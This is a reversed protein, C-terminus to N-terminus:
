LGALVDDGRLLFSPRCFAVFDVRAILGDSFRGARSQPHYVKFFHVPCGGWSDSACVLVRACVCMCVYVCVCMCVCVCVCRLTHLLTYWVEDWESIMKEMAKELSYEKSAAESIAEFKELYPELNMDVRSKLTTDQM